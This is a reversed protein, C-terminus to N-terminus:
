RATKRCMVSVGAFIWIRLRCMDKPDLTTKFPSSRFTPTPSDTTTMPPEPTPLDTISFHTSPSNSGSCPLMQMSPSSTTPMLGFSRSRTIRFNPM